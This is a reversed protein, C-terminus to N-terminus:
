WIGRRKDFKGKTPYRAPAFSTSSAGWESAYVEKHINVITVSVTRRRSFIPISLHVARPIDSVMRSSGRKIIELSRKHDHNTSEQVAPPM